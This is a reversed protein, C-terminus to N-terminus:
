LLLNFIFLLLTLLNCPTLCISQFITHCFDYKYPQEHQLEEFYRLNNMNYNRFYIGRCFVIATRRQGVVVVPSSGGM